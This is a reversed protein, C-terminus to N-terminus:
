EVFFIDRDHACFRKRGREDTLPNDIHHGHSGTRQRVAPPVPEAIGTFEEDLQNSLQISLFYAKAAKQRSRLTMSGVLFGNWMCNGASLADYFADLSEFFGGEGIDGVSYRM